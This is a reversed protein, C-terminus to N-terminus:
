PKIARACHAAEAMLDLYSEFQARAVEIIKLQQAIDNDFIISKQLLDASNIIDLLAETAMAQPMKHATFRPDDSTFDNAVTPLIVCTLM